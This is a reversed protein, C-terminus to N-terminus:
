AQAKKKSEIRKARWYLAHLVTGALAAAALGAGIDRGAQVGPLAGRPDGPLGLAEYWPKDQGIDRYRRTAYLYHTTGVYDNVNVGYVDYGRSKYEEVLKELPGFVLAETPCAEVCAPALGNQVRDVCMTCKYVKNTEPDYRPVDYPCAEICYQCGICKDPRIVVPGEKHVEIANAPCAKACPAESCHMCQHKRFLWFPEGGRVGEFFQMIMWTSPSLNVPNTYGEPNFSTLEAKLGNWVKCAVQCARCGICSDLDVMIAYETM